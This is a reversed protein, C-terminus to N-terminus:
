GWSISRTSMETLLQTSGLAMTRNSPNHWHFIGIVGDPISGTVKRDTACYRLWQAVATGPKINNPQDFRPLRPLHPISCTHYLYRLCVFTRDSYRFPYLGSRSRPTFLPTSHFFFQHFSATIASQPSRDCLEIWQRSSHVHHCDTAFNILRSHWCMLCSVVFIKPMRLVLNTKLM